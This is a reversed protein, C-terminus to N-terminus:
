IVHPFIGKKFLLIGLFLLINDPFESNNDIFIQGSELM